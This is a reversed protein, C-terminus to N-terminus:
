QLEAGAASEDAECRGAVCVCATIERFGCISMQGDRQCQEMVKEPYTPSDVNVCAPYYGCCNGVNKVACDASTRCSYDVADDPEAGAKADPQILTEAEREVPSPPGAHGCGAILTGIALACLLIPASLCKM